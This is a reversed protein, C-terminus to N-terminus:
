AKGEFPAKTEAQVVGMRKIRTDSAEEQAKGGSIFHGGIFLYDVFKFKM